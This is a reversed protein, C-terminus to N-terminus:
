RGVPWEEALGLCAGWGRTNGGGHGDRCPRRGGEGGWGKGSGQLWVVHLTGVEEAGGDLLVDLSVTLEGSTGSSPLHLTHLWEAFVVSSLHIGCFPRERM